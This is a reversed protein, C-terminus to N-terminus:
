HQALLRSVLEAFPRMPAGDMGGVEVFVNDQHFVLNASRADAPQWLAGGDGIAPRDDPSVMAHEVHRYVEAGALAASELVQITVDLAQEGSRWYSVFPNPGRPPADMVWGPFEQRVIRSLDLALPELDAADM